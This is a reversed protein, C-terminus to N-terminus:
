IKYPNKDSFNFLLKYANTNQPVDKANAPIKLKKTDMIVVLLSFFVFDNSSTLIHFLTQNLKKSNHNSIKIFIM